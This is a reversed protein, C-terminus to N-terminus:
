KAHRGPKKTVVIASKARKVPKAVQHERSTAAARAKQLQRPTRKDGAAIEPRTKERQMSRQYTHEQRKQKSTMSQPSVYPTGDDEVRSGTQADYWVKGRRYIFQRSRRSTTGWNKAIWAETAALDGKSALRFVAVRGGPGFRVFLDPKM